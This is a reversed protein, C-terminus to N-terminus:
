IRLQLVRELKGVNTHIPPTTAGEEEVNAEVGEEELPHFLPPTHNRRRRWYATEESPSCKSTSNTLVKSRWVADVDEMDVDSVADADEGWQEKIYEPSTRLPNLHHLSQSHHFMPFAGVTVRRQRRM